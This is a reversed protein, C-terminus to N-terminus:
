EFGLHQAPQDRARIIFSFGKSSIVLAQGMKAHLQAAATQVSFFGDHFANNGEM